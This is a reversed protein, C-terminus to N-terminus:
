ASSESDGVNSGHEPVLNHGGVAILRAGEMSQEAKAATEAWQELHSHSESIIVPQCSDAVVKLIEAPRATPVLV